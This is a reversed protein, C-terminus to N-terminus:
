VSHCSTARRLDSPRCTAPLREVFIQPGALLFRAQFLVYAIFISAGLTLIAYILITRFTFPSRTSLPPM